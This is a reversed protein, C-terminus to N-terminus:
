ETRSPLSRTSLPLALASLRQLKLVTESALLTEETKNMRLLDALIFSDKQDTKTKRIYLNRVADSQIPNIVHVQYGRDSLFCYVSLWYHGTAELCFTIARPDTGFRDQIATLLRNAGSQNNAFSMSLLQKGDGDIICVEHHEKAIDIGAFYMYDDGLAYHAPDRLGRCTGAESNVRSM